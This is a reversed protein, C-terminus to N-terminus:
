PLPKSVLPSHFLCYVRNSSLGKRALLDVCKNAEHFCHKMKVQPIWSILTKCDMILSTHYLNSNFEETVWELIVRVDVEIEIALLNLNVCLILEDRLAWLEAEESATVGISRTLREGM